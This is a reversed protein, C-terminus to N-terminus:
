LSFGSEQGAMEEKEDQEWVYRGAAPDFRLGCDEATLGTIDLALQLAETSGPAPLLLETTQGGLYVARGVNHGIDEDAWLHELAVEPFRASLHRIVPEPREWATLFRVSGDETLATEYADWKTGWHQLRWEYWDAAGHQQLNRRAAKGLSISKELDGWLRLRSIEEPSLPRYPTASESGRGIDHCLQAFADPRLKYVGPLAYTDGPDMAMLLLTLGDRSCCSREIDLSPPMPLLKEFSIVQEPDTDSRIARLVAQREKKNGRITLINTVHNPM